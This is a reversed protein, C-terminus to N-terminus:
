RQPSLGAQTATRTVSKAIQMTKDQHVTKPINLSHRYKYIAYDTWFIDARQYKQRGGKGGM